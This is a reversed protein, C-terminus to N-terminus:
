SRLILNVRDTKYYEGPNSSDNTRLVFSYMDNNIMLNWIEKSIMLKVEEDMLEQIEAQKEMTKLLERVTM